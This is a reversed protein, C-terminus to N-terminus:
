ESPHCQKGTLATDEKRVGTDLSVEGGALVRHDKGGIGRVDALQPVVRLEQAPLVGDTEDHGGEVSGDGIM